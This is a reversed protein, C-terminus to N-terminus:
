EVAIKTTMVRTKGSVKVVYLQGSQMMGKTAYQYTPVARFSRLDVTRGNLDIIEVTVEEDAFGGLALTFQERIPNPYARIVAGREDTSMIIGPSTTQGSTGGDRIPIVINDINLHGFGGTANDVIKLYCSTGIYASADLLKPAYGEDNLATVKMLVANDSARVLAVYLNNLDKGGGLLFTIKGDGGLVFNPTKLEGTQTDGGDKFGWLHRLGQQNFPGGWGWGTETAIDGLSFAQGTVILDDFSIQEFTYKRYTTPMAATVTLTCQATFNGQQTTVKITTSGAATATVNGSADVTAVATNSSQWTLAPNTANPAQVTAYLTAKDGAPLTLSQKDLTVGTVAVRVPIVIDDINLHGFGGTANDVMKLYCTTGIHGSGDLVVRQYAEDNQGTAKTLVVGDSARVLAVYLNALDNGGGLLLSVKGDGGLVFNPTKLEGTQADGGDKFGWLHRIGQQQFPGGWGWSNDTTLDAVTFATGTTTLNQLGGTEFDYRWYDPRPAGNTTDPVARKMGWSEVTRFTVPGGQAVLEVGESSAMTPYFRNSFAAADNIFVDMISGDLFIHFKHPKGFAVVDYSGQLVVKEEDNTATTSATKDLVIKQQQADYYLGTLENRNTSIRFNLGYKTATTNTDVYAIIELQKGRTNALASTGTVTRDTYKQYTDPKRLNAQDPLPKQGLTKGDPRLYWVRPLTFLHCWGADLQAQSSRREDVIGIGVLQNKYDRETTPSLHGHIVDLFKPQAYDPTFQGNQFTGTWYVARTYNTPGYKGVNGGIPNVVLAYKGGGLSEFVPMEWIASGIDMQSYPITSFTPQYTWNVLDTSTYYALGGYGNLAAGILMRWTSGDKWVFPDRLDNVNEKSIVPGSKRWNELKADDSIALAIGPNYSGGHNVNTYFAYAKNGDMVVDGSWIGKMDYGNTASWELTPWLADKAHYWNVLDRSVTHGWHMLTKFPGNPTRQYFLHYAGNHKVLGHPENTWNAPPLAHFLPRNPDNAFRSLPVDLSRTGLARATAAGQQYNTQITSASLAGAYLKTDDVAASLANLLFIGDRKDVNSKGVFMPVNAETVDSNVPIATSAVEAGNLYLKLTGGPSNVVAVVHTWEYLPFPKPAQCAYIQGNLSVTFAWVGFANLSLQYGNAGSFQSILASPTLNAYPTEADSPYSELNVWTEVTLQKTFNHTFNGTVWTSFGDLRLANGNIGAVREPKNFQNVVSFSASNAANVTTTTGTAENYAFHLVPTQASALGSVLSGVLLSLTSTKM